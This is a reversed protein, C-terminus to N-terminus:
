DAHIFSPAYSLESAEWWVHSTLLKESQRQKWWGQQYNWKFTLLPESLGTPVLLPPFGSIPLQSAGPLPTLDLPGQSFCPTLCLGPQGAGPLGPGSLSPSLWSDKGSM